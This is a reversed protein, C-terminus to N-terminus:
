KIDNLYIKFDFFFIPPSNHIKFIFFFLFFFNNDISSGGLFGFLISNIDITVATPPLLQKYQVLRQEWRSLVSKVALEVKNLKVNLLVILM